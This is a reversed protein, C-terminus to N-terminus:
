FNGKKNRLRSIALDNGEKAQATLYKNKEDPIFYDM